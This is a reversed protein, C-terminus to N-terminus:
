QVSYTIRCLPAYWKCDGARCMLYIIRVRGAFVSMTQNAMEM